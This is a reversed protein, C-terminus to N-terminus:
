LNVKIGIGNDAPKLSARKMWGYSSEQVIWGILSLGAGVYFGYIKNENDKFQLETITAVFIGSVILVTGATHVNAFKNFCFRMHDLEQKLRISDLKVHELPNPLLM